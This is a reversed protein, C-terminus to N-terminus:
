GAVGPQIVEQLVARLDTGRVRLGNATHVAVVGEHSCNILLQHRQILALWDVGSKRERERLAASLRQEYPDDANM